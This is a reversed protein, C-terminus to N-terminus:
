DHQDLRASGTILFRMGPRATDYFGKVLNRWRGFKHIEDLVVM